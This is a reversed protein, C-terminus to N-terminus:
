KLGIVQQAQDISLQKANLLRDVVKEVPYDDRAFRTGEELEKGMADWSKKTSRNSGKFEVMARPVNSNSAEWEFKDNLEGRIFDPEDEESLDIALLSDPAIFSSNDAEINLFNSDLEKSEFEFVHWGVLHSNEARLVVNAGEVSSFVVHTVLVSDYLDVKQEDDSHLEVGSGRAVIVSSGVSLDSEVLEFCLRRDQTKVVSDVLTVTSDEEALVIAEDANRVKDVILVGDFVLESNEIMFAPQGSSAFLELRPRNSADGVLKIAQNSLQVVRDLRYTQGSKLKVTQDKGHALAELLAKTTEAKLTEM